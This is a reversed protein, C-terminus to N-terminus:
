KGEQVVKMVTYGGIHNVTDRLVREEVPQKMRVTATKTSVDVKAWVGDLVNLANEVRQACNGCVMGDITLEALYPYHSKDKDTVKIKEVKEGGSTGCCGSTMRKMYGKIVLVAFVILVLAAIAYGFGTM